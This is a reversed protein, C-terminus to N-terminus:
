TAELAIHVRCQSQSFKWMGNEYPRLRVGEREMVWVDMMVYTNLWHGEESDAFHEDLNTSAEM